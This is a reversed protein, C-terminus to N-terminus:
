SKVRQMCSLEQISIHRFKEASEQAVQGSLAKLEDLFGCLEPNRKYKLLMEDRRTIYDAMTEAAIVREENLIEQSKRQIASATITNGGDLVKIALHTLLEEDSMVSFYGKTMISEAMDWIKDMVADAKPQRSWRCIELVGRLSYLFTDYSKGDTTTMKVVVSLPDLRDKHRNHLRAVQRNPDDYELAQGIQTRTFWAKTNGYYGDVLTNNIKRSEILALTM